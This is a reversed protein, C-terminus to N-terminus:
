VAAGRMDSFADMALKLAGLVGQDDGLSAPVIYNDLDELGKGRLYGHLQRRVEKRILPLMQPGHLMGGGLVIRQPSLMMIYSCIAQAIYYAELEWVAPVESLVQAPRGWRREIASSGVLGELCNTHYPCVGQTLPDDPRRSVFIHGGEPHIMGHYPKGGIIVGVGVGAGVTICISNPVNRTCGWVAEGLAAANVNTDLGIPVDLARRLHALLPFNRWGPKPTALITGYHPSTSDLEVPGFCGVGVAALQRSCFFDLMQAVTSKPDRTPIITKELIEGQANGVACVM